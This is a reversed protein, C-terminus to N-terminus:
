NQRLPACPLLSGALEQAQSIAGQARFFLNQKEPSRAAHVSMQASLRLAAWYIENDEGFSAPFMISLKGGIDM